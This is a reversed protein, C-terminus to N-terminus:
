TLSIGRESFPLYSSTIHSIYFKAKIIYTFRIFPSLNIKRVFIVQKNHGRQVIHHPTNPVVIRAKRPM